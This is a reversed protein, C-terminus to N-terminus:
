RLKYRKGEIDVRWIEKGEMLLGESKGKAHPTDTNFLKGGFLMSVTDAVVTHGTVIHRTRFRMNSSDVELESKAAGEGKRYFGRYWFPGFDGMLIDTEINPYKYLSDAYFPRALKNIGNVDIDMNYVQPSIGGHIFLMDGMKLAVNKSRFWQGLETDEGLMSTFPMNMLQSSRQYKANLYRLDGSLNMIEHNGLVYHVDGGAAHAKEELSYILWLVETVQKGRDVFDGVLLLRGDGFTWNYQDDIVKNAQLFKRLAGFEGEIDSVVLMKKPRPFESKEIPNKDKLKVKFYTGPVDTAINLIVKSRDAMTHSSDVSLKPKGDEDVSIYNIYIKNNRYIVYPGDEDAPAPEHSRLSLLVMTLLALSLTKM